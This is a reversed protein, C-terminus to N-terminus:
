IAEHHNNFSSRRELEKLGKKTDSAVRAKDCRSLRYKFLWYTFEKLDTLSFRHSQPYGWGQRFQKVLTTRTEGYIRKYVEEIVADEEYGLIRQEKRVEETVAQILAEELTVGYFYNLHARYKTSGILDRFEESSLKLPPKASFLLAIREEEPILGDAEECLREALLLWDFAEGAILYRYDRGNHNEMPETWLSIAELLALYWPKGSAIAQQLHNIAQIDGSLNGPSSSGEEIMVGKIYVM